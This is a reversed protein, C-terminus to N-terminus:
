RRMKSLLEVSSEPSQWGNAIQEGLSELDDWARTEEAGSEAPELPILLGSPRGHDTILYRSGRERVDEVIESARTELEDIEVERLQAERASM